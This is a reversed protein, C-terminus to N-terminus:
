QSERKKTLKIVGELLHHPEIKNAVLGSISNIDSWTKGIYPYERKALSYYDTGYLPRAIIISKTYILKHELVKNINEELTKPTEGPLGLMIFASPELGAKKLISISNYICESNNYKRIVHQIKHNFHEIGLWLRRCNASVMEDILETDILDCRTQAYWEVDLKKRKIEQCLKIVWQRDLTFVYDLFYFSKVGYQQYLSIIEKTVDIPRRRRVNRGFFNYCFLCNYPCGRQSLIVAWGRKRFPINKIYEDGYYDKFNILSYDPFISNIKPHMLCSDEQTYFLTGNQTKFVINPIKKILGCEVLNYLTKSNEKLFRVLETLTKEYEGRIVIDAGTDKLIIDPRITGHPGVVVLPIDVLSSKLYSITRHAFLIRYDIFYNQAVDYPCTTVVILEADSIYKALLELSSHEVRNDILKIQCGEKKLLASAYLFDIPPQLFSRGSIYEPVILAIKM